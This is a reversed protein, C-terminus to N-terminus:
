DGSQLSTVPNYRRCLERRRKWSQSSLPCSGWLSLSEAEIVDVLSQAKDKVVQVEAKMKEAAQASVSVEQLVKEAKENAVVLEKEKVNLEKQLLEVSAQAELLKYLGLCM